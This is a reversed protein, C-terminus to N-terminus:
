PGIPSPTLPTQRPRVVRPYALTFGAGCYWALHVPATGIPEAISRVVYTGIYCDRLSQGETDAGLWILDAILNFPGFVWMLLRLTMAFLSPRTGRTTVIKLGLLRYAVTRWKSRKLVVLYLWAIAIWLLFLIASPDVSFNGTENNWLLAALVPGFISGLLVAVLVLVATDIIMVAIRRTFGAYAELDYYVGEGLSHDITTSTRASASAPVYYRGQGFSNNPM